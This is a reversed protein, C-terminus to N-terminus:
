PTVGVTTWDLFMSLSLGAGVLAWFGYEVLLPWDLPSPRSEVRAKRTVKYTAM